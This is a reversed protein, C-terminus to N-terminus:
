PMPRTSRCGGATHCSKHASSRPRKGPWAPQWRSISSSWGIMRSWGVQRGPEGCGFTPRRSRTTRQCDSSIGRPSRRSPPRRNSTDQATTPSTPGPRTASSSASAPWTSTSGHIRRIRAAPSSSTTSSRVTSASPPRLHRAARRHLPGSGARRARPGGRGDAPRGDLRDCPLWGGGLDDAGRFACCGFETIVVPKGHRHLSRVDEVFTAANDTDRYLDIGVVDFPRWDVEEWTGSSYTIQGGFIPRIRTVADGLFANLRGNYDAPPDTRPRRRTRALRRGTRLGAMFITLEVGLSLGVDRHEARLEEALGRRRSAVFDLTDAADADFQRPEFWVHLGNDAAITASQGLREIDSGLLFIANCHLDQRIAEIERRVFEPRWIERDTDYNVGKLAPARPPETRDDDGGCAVLVTAATGSCSRADASAPAAVTREAVRPRPAAAADRRRRLRRRDVGAAAAGGARHRRARVDGLGADEAPIGAAAVSLAGLPGFRGVSPALALVLPEVVFMSSSCRSWPSSRTACSRASPSASPASCRRWCRTAASRAPSSASRRCRCTVPRRPDGRGAVAVAVAILLSLVLGATAFAITKAALFRRRDPAALLSSTITRHRWEGSIGVVALVLIFFSSTDSAFVDVLVSDETPETLLAVLAAILVSTGVAVAAIAAFTRTTRLKLLEARLLATM